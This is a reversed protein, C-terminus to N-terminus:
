RQSKFRGTIRSHALRGSEMRERAVAEWERADSPSLKKVLPRDGHVFGGQGDYWMQGSREIRREIYDQYDLRGYSEVRGGKLTVLAVARRGNGIWEVGQMQDIPLMAAARQDPRLRPWVRSVFYDDEGAAMAFFDAALEDAQQTEIALAERRAQNMRERAANFDYAAPANHGHQHDQEDQEALDNYFQDAEAKNYM